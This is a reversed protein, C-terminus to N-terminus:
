PAIIVAGARLEGGAQRAGVGGGRDGSDPPLGVHALFGAAIRVVRQISRRLRRRLARQIGRGTGARRALSRAADGSGPRMYQNAGDPIATSAILGTTSRDVVDWTGARALGALTPSLPAFGAAPPISYAGGLRHALVIRHLGAPVPAHDGCARDRGVVVQAPDERELAGVAAARARVGLLAGVAQDRDDM